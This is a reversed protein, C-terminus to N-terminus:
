VHVIGNAMLCREVLMDVTYSLGGDEKVSGEEKDEDENQEGERVMRIRMREDEEQEEEGEEEGSSAPALRGM